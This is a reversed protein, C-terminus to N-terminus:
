RRTRRNPTEDRAGNRKVSFFANEDKTATATAFALKEASIASERFARAPNAPV